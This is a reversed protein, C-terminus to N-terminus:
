LVPHFILTCKFTRKVTTVAAQVLELVYLWLCFYVYVSVRGCLRSCVCLRMDMKIGFPCANVHCPPWDVIVFIIILMLM